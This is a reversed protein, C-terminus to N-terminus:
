ARCQGVGLRGVGREASWRAIARVAARVWWRWHVDGEVVLRNGCRAAVGPGM